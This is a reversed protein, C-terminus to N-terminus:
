VFSYRLYLIHFFYWFSAEAKKYMAWVEHYKLPFLTFRNKNEKLLPEESEDKQRAAELVASKSRKFPSPDPTRTADRANAQALIDMEINSFDINEDKSRQRKHSKSEANPSSEILSMKGGFLFFTELHKM